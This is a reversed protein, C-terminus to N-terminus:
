WSWAAGLGVTTHGIGRTNTALGAKLVGNDTFRYTGGIALSEYDMHNGYGFGLSFTKDVAVEPINAMASVSAIASGFQRINVADFDGTGDAIGHVQVPAGTQANTFTAGSDDLTMSTLHAGGSITTQTETVVLGQTNGYGNTLTLSATPATAGTATIKGNGDVVAGGNNSIGVAGSTLSTAGDLTSTGGSVTTKASTNSALEFSGNIYMNGDVVTDGVIINNVTANTLLAQSNADGNQLVYKDAGATTSMTQATTYSSIGSITTSGSYMRTVGNSVSITSDGANITTTSAADSNGITTAASGSTNITATGTQNLAGLTSTGTVGLTGGVTANNTISTSNLTALGSTSVTSLSTNGTVGLSGGVTASNTISTSNLTALGSTSLTSSSVNGSASISTSTISGTSISGSSLTGTLSLSSLGSISNVNGLNGSTDVTIVTYQDQSNDSGTAELRGPSNDGHLPDAGFANSSVALSFLISISLKTKQHM